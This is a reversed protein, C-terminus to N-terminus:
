REAERGALAAERDGEERRGPESMWQHLVAVLPTGAVELRLEGGDFQEDDVFEAVHRERLGARFQEKLDEALTVFVPRRDYCGIKWELFPRADEAIWTQGARQEIAERMTGM